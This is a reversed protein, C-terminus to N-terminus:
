GGQLSPRRAIRRSGRGSAGFELQHELLHLVHLVVGRAIRGEIEGRKATLQPEVDRSSELGWIPPCGIRRWRCTASSSHGCSTELWFFAAAPSRALWAEPYGAGCGAGTSGGPGRDHFLAVM